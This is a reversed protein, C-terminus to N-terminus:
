LIKENNLKMDIKLTKFIKLLQDTNANLSGNEIRKLTNFSFDTLLSLEELSMQLQVRAFQIVSGIKEREKLVNIKNM